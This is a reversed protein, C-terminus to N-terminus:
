DDEDDADDGEVVYMNLADDHMLQHAISLVGVAEMQSLDDSYRFYWCPVGEENLAKILVIAELPMAEDPLSALRISGLLNAAAATDSM